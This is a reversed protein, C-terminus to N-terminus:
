GIHCFYMVERLIKGGIVDEQVTRGLSFGNKEYFARACTNEELVWLFVDHYRLKSLESVAAKFLFKGYGRGIYEPLLYISIIEGFNLFEATRSQGYSATGIYKENELLVLSDRGPGALYEVWSDESISVLYSQPIINRYAFKWSEAYIRSIENLDDDKSLKHIEM